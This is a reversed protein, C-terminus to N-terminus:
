LGFLVDGLVGHNLPSSGASGYLTRTKTQSGDNPKPLEPRRRARQAHVAPLLGLSKNHAKIKQKKTPPPPECSTLPRSPRPIQLKKPRIDIRHTECLSERVKRPQPLMNTTDQRPCADAFEDHLEIESICSLTKLM